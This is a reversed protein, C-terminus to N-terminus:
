KVESSKNLFNSSYIIYTKGLWSPLNQYKICHSLESQTVCNWQWTYPLFEAIFKYISWFNQDFEPLNRFLHTQFAVDLLLENKEPIQDTFYLLDDLKSVIYNPQTIKMSLKKETFIGHQTGAAVVKAVPSWCWKRCRWWHRQRCEGMPASPYWRTVVWRPSNYRWGAIDHYPMTFKEPSQHTTSPNITLRLVGWFEM